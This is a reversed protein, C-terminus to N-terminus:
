CANQRCIARVKSATEMLPAAEEPDDHPPQVPGGVVKAYPGSSMSRARRVRPV